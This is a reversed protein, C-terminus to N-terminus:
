AAVAWVAQFAGIRRHLQFRSPTQDGLQKEIAAIRVNTAQVTLTVIEGTYSGDSNKTFVGIKAM